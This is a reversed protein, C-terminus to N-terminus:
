RAWFMRAAGVVNPNSKIKGMLDAYNSISAHAMTVKLHSNFGLVRERMEKDFGNMVSIVIVLVAVGLMVGLVSILTIISM